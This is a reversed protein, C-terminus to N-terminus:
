WSSGKRGQKEEARQRVGQQLWGRCGSDDGGVGIIAAAARTPWLRQGRRRGGDGKVAAAWRGLLATTGQRLAGHRSSGEVEEAVVADKEAMAVTADKAEQTTTGSSGTAWGRQRHENSGAVCKRKEEGTTAAKGKPAPDSRRGVAREGGSKSRVQRLRPRRHVKGGRGSSCDSGVSSSWGEYGAKMVLLPRKEALIVYGGFDVATLGEDHNVVYHDEEKLNMPMPELDADKVPAQDQPPMITRDFRIKSSPEPLITQEKEVLSINGDFDNAM